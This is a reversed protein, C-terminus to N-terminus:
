HHVCRPSTRDSTMRQCKQREKDLLNLRTERANSIGPVPRLIVATIVRHGVPVTGEIRADKRVIGCLSSRHRVPQKLRARELQAHRSRMQRRAHAGTESIRSVNVVGLANVIGEAHRLRHIAACGRRYDARFSRPTSVAARSRHRLTANISGCRTHTHPRTASRRRARM